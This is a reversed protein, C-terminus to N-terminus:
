PKRGHRASGDSTEDVLKSTAILDDLLRAYADGDLPLSIPAGAFHSAIVANALMVSNLGEAGTAIPEARGRVAHAFREIVERHGGEEASTTITESGYPVTTFLEDSTASVAFM